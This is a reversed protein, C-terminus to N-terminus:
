ELLEPRSVILVMLLWPLHLACGACRGHVWQLLPFAHEFAEMVMESM